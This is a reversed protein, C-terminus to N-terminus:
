LISIQLDKNENTLSEIRDHGELLAVDKEVSADKLSELESLKDDTEKNAKEMRDVFNRLSQM